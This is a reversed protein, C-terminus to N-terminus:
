NNNNKGRIIANFAIAPREEMQARIIWVNKANERKKALLEKYIIIQSVIFAITNQKKWAISVILLYFCIIKNNNGAEIVRIALKIELEKTIINPVPLILALEMLYFSTAQVNFVLLSMTELCVNAQSAILIACNVFKIIIPLM